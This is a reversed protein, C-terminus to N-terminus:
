STLSRGNASPGPPTSTPFGAPEPPKQWRPWRRWRRRWASCPLPCTTGNTWGSCVSGSLQPFGGARRVQLPVGAAVQLGLWPIKQQVPSRPRHHLQGGRRAGRFGAASVSPFGHRGGARACGQRTRGARRARPRLRLSRNGEHHRAAAGARGHAPHHSLRTRRRRLDGHDALWKKLDCPSARAQLPRSRSGPASEGLAVMACCPPGSWGKQPATILVDIGLAKMDVWIAGSAVCDLVLMGGNAHVTDALAKIYSDPLLMGSSTEVHPAFVLEAKSREIAGDHGGGDPRPRLTVGPLRRAPPGQAGNGLRTHPLGRLDPEVPLQVPRETHRPMKQGHAFQRAVAEMGFTGSGPVVIASRARYVDKLISSIDRMAGQFLKSMHNVSRDTYVVSYELLGEPDVNPLLGPM